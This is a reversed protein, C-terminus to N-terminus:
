KVETNKKFLGYINTQNIFLYNKNKYCTIFTYKQSLLDLM